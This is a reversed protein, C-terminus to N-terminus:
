LLSSHCVVRFTHPLGKRQGDSLIASPNVHATKWLGATNEKECSPFFYIYLHTNNLSTTESIDSLSLLSFKGWEWSKWHIRHAWLPLTVQWYECLERTIPCPITLTELGLVTNCAATERKSVSSVLKLNIITILAFM